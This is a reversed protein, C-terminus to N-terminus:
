WAVPHDLGGTEAVKKRKIAALDAWWVFGMWRRGCGYRWNANRCGTTPKKTIPVVTLRGVNPLDFFLRGFVM